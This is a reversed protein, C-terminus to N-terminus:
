WYKDSFLQVKPLAQFHLCRNLSEMGQHDQEVLPSKRVNKSRKPGFFRTLNALPLASRFCEQFRKLTQFVNMGEKGGFREGSM